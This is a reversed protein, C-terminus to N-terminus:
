ALALQVGYLQRHAKVPQRLSNKALDSLSGDEKMWGLTVMEENQLHRQLPTM